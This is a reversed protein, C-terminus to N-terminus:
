TAHVGAAQLATLLADHLAVPAAVIDGVWSPHGDFDTVRAGAEVAVLGGAAM